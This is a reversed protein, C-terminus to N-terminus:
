KIPLPPPHNQIFTSGAEHSVLSGPTQKSPASCSSANCRASSAVGLAQSAVRLMEVTNLAQPRQKVKEKKSM